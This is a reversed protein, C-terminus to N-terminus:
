SSGCSSPIPKLASFFSPYSKEAQQVFTTDVMAAASVDTTISKDNYLKQNELAFGKLTCGSIRPDYVQTKVSGQAITVSLGSIFNAATSGAESLHSTTYADADAMADTLKQIVSAHSQIYSKEASLGVGYAIVNGGRDILVAKSGMTDMIQTGYPEATAIASVEGKQLAVLQDALPLNVFTVKSAPVNHDALYSAVYDNGTGGVFMGVKKGIFSSPDNAKIGSSASAVIAVPTDDYVTSADGLVPAYMVEDTGASQAEAITTNAATTTQVTGSQLAKNVAAGNAFLQLKARIGYKLFIGNEVAVFLAAVSMNGVAGINVTVPATTTGADATSQSGASSGSSSSCAALVLCAAAVASTAALSIGRPRTSM